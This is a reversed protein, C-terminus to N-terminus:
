LVRTNDLCLHAIIDDCSECSRHMVRDFRSGVPTVHLSLRELESYDSTAQSEYVIYQAMQLQTLFRQTNNFFSGLRRVDDVVFSAM